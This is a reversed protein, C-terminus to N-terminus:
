RINGREMGRWELVQYVDAYAIWETHTVGMTGYM